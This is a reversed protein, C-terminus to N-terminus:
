LIDELGTTNIDKLNNQIDKQRQLSTSLEFVYMNEFSMGQEGDCNEVAIESGMVYYTGELGATKQFDHNVSIDKIFHLAKELSPGEYYTFCYPNSKEAEFRLIEDAGLRHFEYYDGVDEEFDYTVLAGYVEREGDLAPTLTELISEIYSDFNM